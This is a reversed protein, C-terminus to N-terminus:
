AMSNTTLYNIFVILSNPEYIQLRLLRFAHALTQHPDEQQTMVCFSAGYMTLYCTHSGPWWRRWLLLVVVAEELGISKGLSRRWIYDYGFLTMVM